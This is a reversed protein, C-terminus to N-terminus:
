PFLLNGVCHEISETASIRLIMSQHHHGRRTQQKVTRARKEKGRRWGCGGYDVRKKRDWRLWRSRKKKIEKGGEDVVKRRTTENPNEAGTNGPKLGLGVVVQRLLLGFFV